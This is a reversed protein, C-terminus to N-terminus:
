EAKNIAFYFRSGKGLESEVLIQSDISETLSKVLKLGFGSGKENETGLNQVKSDLNFISSATKADMGVGTDVISIIISNDKEEAEVRINGGTPTFKLANSVLNRIITTLTLESEHIYISPNINSILRINKKIATNQLPTITLAVLEALKISKKEFHAKGSEIKSWLLLNEMLDYLSDTSSIILNLYYKKEEEDMSEYNELISKLLQNTSSIPLRLDHSIISFFTNKIENLKAMEKYSEEIQQNYQTLKNRSRILILVFLISISIGVWLIITDRKKRQILKDSLTLQEELTENKSEMNQIEAQSEMLEKEKKVDETFIKNKYFYSKKLHEIASLYNHKLSDITFLHEHAMKFYVDYGNTDIENLTRHLFYHASDLNIEQFAIGTNNLAIAKVRMDNSNRLSKLIEIAKRERHTKIYIGSINAKALTYIHDNHYQSALQIAQDLYFEGSDLQNSEKYSLGLNSFILPYMDVRHLANAYQFSIKFQKIAEEYLYISRCIIGITNKSYIIMNSDQENVYISDSLRIYKLANNFDEKYYYANSLDLLLKAKNRLKTTYKLGKTLLVIASDSEYTTSFVMGLNSYGLRILSSDKLKFAYQLANRYLIKSSDKDQQMFIFGGLMSYYDHFATDDHHKSAYSYLNAFHPLASDLQLPFYARIIKSISDATNNSKQGSATSAISLLLSLFLLSFLKKM